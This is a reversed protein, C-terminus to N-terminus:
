TIRESKEKLHQPAELFQSYYIRGRVQVNEGLRLVDGIIDGDIKADNIQAKRTKVSGKIQFSTDSKLGILSTLLKGVIEGLEDSNRQVKGIQVEKAILDGGISSNGGRPSVLKEAIVNGKTKMSGQIVVSSVCEVSGVTVRGLVKLRNGVVLRELAILKGAITLRDLCYVGRNSFCKGTITCEGRIKIDKGGDLKGNIACRGNVRVEGMINGSGAISLRHCELDGSVRLIGAVTVPGEVILDQEYTKKGTVTLSGVKKDEPELLGLEKFKEFLEKFEEASIEGSALKARLRGELSDPSVM